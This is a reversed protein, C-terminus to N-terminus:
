QQLNGVSQQILRAAVAQSTLGTNIIFHYLTIDDWDIDYNNRLYAARRKDSKQIMNQAEKSSVEHREMVVRIRTEIPAVTRVHLTNPHDRLIAQAGRGVIILNGRKWLRDVSIQLFKLYDRQDLHHQEETLAADDALLAASVEYPFGLGWLMAPPVPVSRSPTFFSLLFRKVSSESLEDYNEVESEPVNAERAVETILDKDVWDYGLHEATRHAVLDGISGLQRPITVVAM